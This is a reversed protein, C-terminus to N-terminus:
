LFRAHLEFGLQLHHGRDGSGSQKRDGAKPNLALM